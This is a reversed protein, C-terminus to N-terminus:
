FMVMRNLNVLKDAWEGVEGVGPMTTTMSDRDMPNNDEMPGNM